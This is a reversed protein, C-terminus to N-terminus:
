DRACPVAQPQWLPETGYISALARALVTWLEPPADAANQILNLETLAEEWQGNTVLASGLGIAVLGYISGLVVTTVLISLFSGM